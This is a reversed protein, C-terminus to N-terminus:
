LETNKNQASRESVCQGLASRPTRVGAAGWSRGFYLGGLFLVIHKGHMNKRTLLYVQQFMSDAQRANNFVFGELDQGANALELVIYLQDDDFIDPCDNESGLYM